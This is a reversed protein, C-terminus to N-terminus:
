RSEGDNNLSMVYYRVFDQEQTRGVIQNYGDHSRVRMVELAKIEM